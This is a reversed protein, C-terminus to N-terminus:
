RGTRWLIDGSHPMKRIRFAIQLKTGILQILQQRLKSRDPQADIEVLIADVLNGLTLQTM